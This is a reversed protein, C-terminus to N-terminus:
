LIIGGKVLLKKIKNKLRSVRKNVSNRKIKFAKAIEETSYYYIYRMGFLIREQKNLNKRINDVLIEFEVKNEFEIPESLFDIKEDGILEGTKRMNSKCYNLATSRAIIAVFAGMSGRTENYEQLKEIIGTYVTNVCDDIDRIQNAYNLIRTVIARIQPNYREYFDDNVEHINKTDTGNINIFDMYAGKKM